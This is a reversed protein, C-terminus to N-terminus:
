GDALEAAGTRSAHQLSVELGVQLRAGEAISVFTM